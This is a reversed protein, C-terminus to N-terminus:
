AQMRVAGGVKLLVPSTHLETKLKLDWGQALRVLMGVLRSVALKGRKQNEISDMIIIYTRNRETLSM